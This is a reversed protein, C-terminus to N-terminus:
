NKHEKKKQKTFSKKAGDRLSKVVDVPSEFTSQIKLIIGEKIKGFSECSKRQASDHMYFKM